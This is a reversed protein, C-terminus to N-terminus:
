RSPLHPPGLCMSMSFIPAGAEAVSNEGSMEGTKERDPVRTGTLYDPM